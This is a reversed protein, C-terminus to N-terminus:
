LTIGAEPVEFYAVFKYNTSASGYEHTIMILETPLIKFDVGYNCIDRPGPKHTWRGTKPEKRYWHHDAGNTSVYLAVLYRNDGPSPPNTQDVCPLHNLGDQKAGSILRAAEFAGSSGKPNYGSKDGPDPKAKSPKKCNVAWAYCNVGDSGGWDAVTMVKPEGKIAAQALDDITVPM